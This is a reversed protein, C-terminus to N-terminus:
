VSQRAIQILYRLKELGGFMRRSAMERAYVTKRTHKLTIEGEGSSGVEIYPYKAKVGELLRVLYPKVGSHPFRHFDKM